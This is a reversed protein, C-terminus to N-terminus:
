DEFGPTSPATVSVPPDCPDTLTLTITTEKEVTAETPSGKITITYEGPPVSGDLYAASPITLSLKGTDKFSDNDSLDDLDTLDACTLAETVGDARTIDM